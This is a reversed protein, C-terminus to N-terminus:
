QAASATTATPADQAGGTQFKRGDPLTVIVSYGYPGGNKALYGRNHVETGPAVDTKKLGIRALQNPAGFEVGWNTVKGANDKVDFYLWSHPNVWKIKTVTGKLDLPKDADFEAAFAHHASAPVCTALLWGAAALSVFSKSVTINHM